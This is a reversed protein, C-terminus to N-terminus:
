YYGSSKILYKISGFNYVLSIIFMIDNLEWLYVLYIINGDWIVFLIFLVLLFYNVWMFWLYFGFNFGMDVLNVFKM